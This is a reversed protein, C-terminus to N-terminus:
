YLQATRGTPFCLPIIVSIIDPPTDIAGGILWINMLCFSSFIAQYFILKLIVSKKEKM